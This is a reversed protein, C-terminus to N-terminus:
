RADETQGTDTSATLLARARLLGRRIHSKVTGLPLSTERAIEDHTKGDLLSLELLQRQAPPLSRLVARAREARSERDIEEDPSEAGEDAVDFDTPFAEVEPTRQRRRARDILRRRAIMAVWGAESARAIDFRSATRWLDIFVEQVADEADLADSSWRRALSWVLAGYRQVCERVAREDGNAIRPLLPSLAVAETGVVTVLSLHQRAASGM